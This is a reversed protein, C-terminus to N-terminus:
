DDKLSKLYAKTYYFKGCVEKLASGDPRHRETLNFDYVQAWLTFTIVRKDQPPYLIEQSGGTAVAIDMLDYPDVDEIENDDFQFFWGLLHTELTDIFDPSILSLVSYVSDFNDTEAAIFYSYGKDVIVTDSVSDDDSRYLRFYEYSDKTTDFSQLNEGKVKYIGIWNIVPNTNVNVRSVDAFHTNYRVTYDSRVPLVGKVNAFVRIKITLLEMIMPMFFEMEPDIPTDIYSEVTDLFESKSMSAFESPIFDKYEEPILSMLDEPIMKSEKMVNPPIQFRIGVTYTNESFTTDIHDYSLPVISDAIELNFSNGSLKYSVSWQLDEPRISDGAFVVLLTVSDGPAVETPEYIFDLVRIEESEIWNYSTPFEACSLFLLCCIISLLFCKKKIVM